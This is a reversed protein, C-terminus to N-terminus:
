SVYSKTQSIFELEVKATCGHRLIYWYEEILSEIHTFVIFIISTNSTNRDNLMALNQQAQHVQYAQVSGASHSVTQVLVGFVNEVKYPTVTLHM